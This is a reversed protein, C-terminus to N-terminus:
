GGKRREMFLRKKVQSRLYITMLIFTSIFLIVIFAVSWLVKEFFTMPGLRKLLHNLWNIQQEAIMGNHKNSSINIQETTVTHELSKMDLWRNEIFPEIVSLYNKFMDLDMVLDISIGIFEDNNVLHEVQQAVTTLSINPTVELVTPYLNIGWLFTATSPVNPLQMKEMSFKRIQTKGIVTSFYKKLTQFNEKFIPTNSIDVGLPYLEHTVLEAISNEVTDVLFRREDTIYETLYTEYQQKNTFQEKAKLTVDKREPLSLMITAGNSQLKQLVKVLQKAQDLTTMEGTEDNIHFPQVTLIFPIDKEVLYFGVNELLNADSLPSLSPIMFYALTEDPQDNLIGRIIEDLLRLADTSLDQFSVYFDNNRQLILPYLENGRKGNMLIRQNLEDKLTIRKIRMPKELHYNKKIDERIVEHVFSDRQEIDISFTSFQQINEGIFLTPNQYQEILKITESRIQSQDESYVVLLDKHQLHEATLDQEFVVDVDTAFQHLFYDLKEVHFTKLSPGQNHVLIINNKENIYNGQVVIGNFALFSIVILILCSSIKRKM